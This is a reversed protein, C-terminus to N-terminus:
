PNAVSRLKYRRSARSGDRVLLGAECFRLLYTSVASLRINLKYDERLCRYLEKSTFWRGDGFRTAIADWIIEKLSRPRPPSPHVNGSMLKILELAQLVRNENLSDGELILCIKEGSPLRDEIRIKVM